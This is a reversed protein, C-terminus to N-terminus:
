MYEVITKKERGGEERLTIEAWAGKCLCVWKLRSDVYSVRIENLAIFKLVDMKGAFTTISNKKSASYFVVM